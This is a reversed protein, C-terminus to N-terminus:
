AVVAMVGPAERGEAEGRAERRLHCVGDARERRPPVRPPRGHHGQEFPERRGLQEVDFPEVAVLAGVLAAEHVEGPERRVGAAPRRLVREAARAEREREFRERRLGGDHEHRAVHRCGALGALPREHPRGQEVCAREDLGEDGAEAVVAPSVASPAPSTADSRSAGDAPAVAGVAPAQAASALWGRIAVLRGEQVRARPTSSATVSPPELAARAARPWSSADPRLGPM